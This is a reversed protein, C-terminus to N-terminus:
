YLSAISKAWQQMRMGWITRVEWVCWEWTRISTSVSVINIKHLFAMFIFFRKLFSGCPRVLPRLHVQQKIKCECECGDEDHFMVRCTSSWVNHHRENSFVEQPCMLSSVSYAVILDIPHLYPVSCHKHLKTLGQCWLYPLHCIESGAWAVSSGPVSRVTLM